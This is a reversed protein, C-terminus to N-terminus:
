EQSFSKEFNRKAFSIELDEAKEDVEWNKETMVRELGLDFLPLAVEFLKLAQLWNEIKMFGAGNFLGNFERCIKGIACFHFLVLQPNIASLGSFKAREAHRPAAPRESIAIKPERSM